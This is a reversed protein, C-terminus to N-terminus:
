WPTRVLGDPSTPPATERDNRSEGENPIDAGVMFSGPTGHRADATKRQFMAGEGNKPKAFDTSPSRASRRPSSMETSRHGSFRSVVVTTAARDRADDCQAVLLVVSIRVDRHWSRRRLDEFEGFNARFMAVVFQAFFERRQNPLKWMQPRQRRSPTPACRGRVARRLRL